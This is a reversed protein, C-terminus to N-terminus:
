EGPPKQPPKEPPKPPDEPEPGQFPRNLYTM